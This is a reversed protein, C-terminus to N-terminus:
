IGHGPSRAPLPPMRRPAASVWRASWSGTAAASSVGQLSPGVVGPRRHTAAPPLEDPVAPGMRAHVPSTGPTQRSLSRQPSGALVVLSLIVCAGAALVGSDMIWDGSATCGNAHPRLARWDVFQKVGRV